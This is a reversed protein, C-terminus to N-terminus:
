EELFIQLVTKRNSGTVNKVGLGIAYRKGIVTLHNKARTVATYLLRTNLMRYYCLDVPLVVHSYESGQAKHVTLAYGLQLLSSLENIDYIVVVDDGPYYVWCWGEDVDIQKVVGVFGNFILSTSSRKFGMPNDNFEALSMCPMQQNVLHLVKDDEAIKNRDAGMVLPVNDPNLCQQIVHNLNATGIIGKKMPALLQYRYLWEHYDNAEKYQDLHPKASTFYKRVSNAIAQHNDRCSKAWMEDSLGGRKGNDHQVFYLESSRENLQKPFVGQRIDNAASIIPSKASTRNPKTLNVVPVQGSGMLDSFPSGPSVPDLQCKDGILIVRCSPGVKRLLLYLEYVPVMAAEDIVIVDYPFVDREQHSVLLRQITGGQYGTTKKIRDTAIGSLATVYFRDRDRYRQSLVKLVGEACTTKGAGAIGSIVFFLSDNAQMIAQKQEDNYAFGQEKELKAVFRELKVPDKIAPVTRRNTRDSVFEFIGDAAKFYKSLCVRQKTLLVVKKDDNLKILTDDWLGKNIPTKASENFFDYVDQRDLATHGSEMGIKNITYVIAARVRVPSSEDIGMNLAVKDCTEFGFGPVATMMYPDARLKSVIGEVGKFHLCIRRIQAPTCGYPALLATLNYFSIAKHWSDVIKDKTSPGIGKISTLSRPDNEVMSKFREFTFHKVIHKASAKGVGKVFTTLFSFLDNAVDIEVSDCKFQWGYQNHNVWKGSLVVPKDKFDVSGYIHPGSFKYGMKGSLPTKAEDPIDGVNDPRFSGAIWDPKEHFVKSITGKVLVLDSCM